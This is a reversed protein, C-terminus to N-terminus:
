GVAKNKFLKLSEKTLQRHKDKLVNENVCKKDGSTSTDLFASKNIQTTYYAISEQFARQSENQCLYTWASEICPVSGSNISSTYAQCLELLMEGTIYKGNLQKARVRKFIRNRLGNMQDVFEPRLREDNLNQLIQLDKEEETPRVITFCDRDRFFNM